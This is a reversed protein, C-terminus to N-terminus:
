EFRLCHEQRINWSCPLGFRVGSEGIGVDVLRDKPWVRVGSEGRFYEVLKECKTFILSALWIKKEKIIIIIKKKSEELSILPQM